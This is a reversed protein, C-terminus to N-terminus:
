LRCESLLTIPAYPSNSEMNQTVPVSALQDRSITRVGSSPTHLCIVGAAIDLLRGNAVGSMFLSAPHDAPDSM